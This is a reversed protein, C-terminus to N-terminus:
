IDKFFSQYSFDFSVKELIYHFRLSKEKSNIIDKLILKGSETNLDKLYISVETQKSVVAILSNDEIFWNILLSPEVVDNVAWYNRMTTDNENISVTLFDVMYEPLYTLFNNQLKFEASYHNKEIKEHLYKVNNDPPVIFFTLIFYIIGNKIMIADKYNLNKNKGQITQQLRFYYEKLSEEPTKVLLEKITEKINNFSKSMDFNVSLNNYDILSENLFNYNSSLFDSFHEIFIDINNKLTLNTKDEAIYGSILIEVFLNRFEELKSM